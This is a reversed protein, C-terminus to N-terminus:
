NNKITNKEAKLYNEKERQELKNLQSCMAGIVSLEFNNFKFNEELFNEAEKQSNFTVPSVNYEGLTLIFKDEEGDKIARVVVVDQEEIWKKLNEM